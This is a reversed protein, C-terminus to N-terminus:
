RGGRVCRVNLAETKTIPASHGRDFVVLYANPDGWVGFMLTSSWFADSPTAPFAVTDIAPEKRAFDVISLLEIRTPLRWDSAEELLLSDCYANADAWSRLETGAAREWELLTARDCVTKARLAYTGAPPSAPPLPGTAWERDLAGGADIPPRCPWDDTAADPAADARKADARADVIVAADEPDPDAEDEPEPAPESGSGGDGDIPGLRTSSCAGYVLSSTTAAIAILVGRIRM